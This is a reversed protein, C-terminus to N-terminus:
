CRSLVEDIVQPLSEELSFDKFLCADLKPEEALLGEPDDGTLLIFPLSSGQNRLERFLDIGSILPMNMDSIVLDCGGEGALIEMAEVGNEALQCNYGLDELVAVTMERSFPDDDVVLVRM